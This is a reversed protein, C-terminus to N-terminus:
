RKAKLNLEALHDIREQLEARKEEGAKTGSAAIHGIQREADAIAAKREESTM